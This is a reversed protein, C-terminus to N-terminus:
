HCTQGERRNQCSVLVQLVWSLPKHLRGWTLLRGPLGQALALSQHPRLRHLGKGETRGSSEERSCFHGSFGLNVHEARSPSEEIQKKKNEILFSPKVRTKGKSGWRLQGASITPHHQPAPSWVENSGCAATDQLVCDPKLFLTATQM